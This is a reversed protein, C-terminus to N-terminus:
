GSSELCVEFFNTSKTHGRSYSYPLAVRTLEGTWQLLVARGQERKSGRLECMAESVGSISRVMELTGENERDFEPGHWEASLGSWNLWKFSIRGVFGVSASTQLKM